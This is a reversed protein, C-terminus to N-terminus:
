CWFGGDRALPDLSNGAQLLIPWRSVNGTVAPMLEDFIAAREEPRFSQGMAGSLETPM